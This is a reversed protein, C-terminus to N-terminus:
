VACDDPGRARQVLGAVRAPPQRRQLIDQKFYLRHHTDASEASCEVEEQRTGATATTCEADAALPPIRPPCPHPISARHCPDLGDSRPISPRRLHLIQHLSSAPPRRLAPRCHAGTHLVSQKTSSSFDAVLRTPPTICQTTFLSLLIAWTPEPKTACINDTAM